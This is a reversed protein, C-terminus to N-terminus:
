PAGWGGGTGKDSHVAGQGMLSADASCMHRHLVPGLMNGKSINTPNKWWRLAVHLGRPVLMKAHLHRQPCLGLCLLCRQLLHMHLLALPVVQVSAAMLGLLRLCLTRCVRAGLQCLSLCLQLAEQREETLTMVGTKADLHMGLFQTTQLRCKKENICLGLSYCTGAFSGCPQLVKGRDSCMDM